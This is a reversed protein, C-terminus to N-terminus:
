RQSHFLQYKKPSVGIVKKFLRSFYFQDNIGVLSSVEGITKGELLYQISSSIRISNLLTQPPLGTHITISKRLFEYSIGMDEAMARFDYNIEPAIKMQIVRKSIAEKMTESSSFDPTELISMIEYIKSSVSMLQRHNNLYAASLIETLKNYVLSMDSLKYIPQSKKIDGHELLNDVTSGSFTIWLEEWGSNKDSTYQHWEGPFLFLANGSEIKTKSKNQSEFNGTGNLLLVIAYSELTRKRDIQKFLQTDYHGCGLLRIGFFTLNQEYFYQNFFTISKPNYIM